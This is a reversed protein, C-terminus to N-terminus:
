VRWKSPDEPYVEKYIPPTAFVLKNPLIGGFGKLVELPDRKPATKEESEM